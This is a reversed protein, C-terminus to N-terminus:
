SRISMIHRFGISFVEKGDTRSTAPQRSFPVTVGYLHTSPFSWNFFIASFASHVRSNAGFSRSVDLNLMTEVKTCLRTLPHFVTFIFIACSGNSVQLREESDTIESARHIFPYSSHINPDKHGKDLIQLQRKWKRGFFHTTV